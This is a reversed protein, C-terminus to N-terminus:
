LGLLSLMEDFADTTNHQPTEATLSDEALDLLMCVADPTNLDNEIYEYFRHLYYEPNVGRGLTRAKHIVALHAQADDLRSDLWEGGVRYHYGLLALRVVPAEYTKLLDAAFVLNGLSKSMKEGKYSLPAVHMWHRALLPQGLGRTQASEAEHHPYILDMGGGHIDFPIDLLDSSMVSCEIHWGPRGTGVAVQWQAADAPDDIFKWLLFDLPDQKGPREPDGGRDAMFARQLKKSLHSQQGFNEDQKVAYYIDGSDHRYARGNELLKQVADAMHQIYESARPEAFPQKINLEHMVRQFSATQEDALQMYPVGLEAAKAYMPEDVDTTNRVLKVTKGQRELYRQLVDYALFTFAHGLHASDYPTIGCVYLQVERGFDPAVM